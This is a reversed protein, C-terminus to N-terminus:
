FPNTPSEGDYWTHYSVPMSAATKQGKTLEVLSFHKMPRGKLFFRQEMKFYYSQYLNFHM